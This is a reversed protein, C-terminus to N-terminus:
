CSMEKEWFSIKELIPKKFFEDSLIAKAANLLIFVIFIIKKAKM